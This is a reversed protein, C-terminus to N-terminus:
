SESRHRKRVLALPSYRLKWTTAGGERKIEFFLGLTILVVLATAPDLSAFLSLIWEM